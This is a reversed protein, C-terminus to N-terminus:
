SGGGDGMVMTMLLIENMSLSLTITQSPVHAM